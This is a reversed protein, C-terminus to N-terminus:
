NKRIIKDIYKALEYIAASFLLLAVFVLSSQKINFKICIIMTLIFLAITTLWFALSKM